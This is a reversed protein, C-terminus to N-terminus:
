GTIAALGVKLVVVVAWPILVGALASSWRKRTVAAMGTATLLIMWFAFVDISTGLSVLWAPVSHPDLFFGLNYGAPNNLDFDSPDKIFMVIVAGALGLVQPVSAYAAVGLVQRYKAAAGLMTNFVFLLVGATILMMVPPAVVAIVTGFAPAFKLQMEIARERDEPSMSQAKSSAEFKQRLFHEWGVHSSFALMYGLTCLMTLIMPVWWGPRAAIDAFAPKPDIIVNVLRGAESM